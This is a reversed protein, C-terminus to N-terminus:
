SPQSPRSCSRADNFSGRFRVLRRSKRRALSRCFFVEPAKRRFWVTKRSTRSGASSSSDRQKSGDMWKGAAPISVSRRNFDLQKHTQRVSENSDESIETSAPNSLFHISYKRNLYLSNVPFNYSTQAKSHKFNRNTSQEQKVNSKVFLTNRSFAYNLKLFIKTVYFQLFLNHM